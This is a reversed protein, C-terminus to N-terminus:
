KKWQQFYNIPNTNLESFLVAFKPFKKIILDYIIEVTFKESEYHGIDALLFRESAEFWAHYKIDGTVYADAGSAMANNAFSAGSGGCLAVKHIKKGSFGSHRVSEKNFLDSLTKIFNERTMEKELTGVVGLGTSPDENELNILDYAVEEYPHNRILANVVKSKLYRPVIVEIKIEKERHVKGQEGVFPKTGEGGRFTGTGESSFSCSDYRGIAGAGAAFLAERLSDAEGQPVYTILKMVGNRMPVLPKMGKLGILSGMKWSVGGQVSDLNTHASYVSIGNRLAKMLIRGVRDSPTINKLPSYILPHHSVILNAGRKIAEDVVEETVDITLLVAKAPASPDGAQLGSNDYDEQYSLPIREDLFTILDSINM